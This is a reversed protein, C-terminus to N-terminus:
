SWVNFGAQALGTSLAYTNQINYQSLWCGGHILIVLPPQKNELKNIKKAPWLLAYQLPEAGYSINEDAASFPLVEVISYAVDNDVTPFKIVSQSAFVTFSLFSLSLVILWNLSTLKRLYFLLTLILV